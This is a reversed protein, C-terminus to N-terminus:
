ERPRPERLKDLDTKKFLQGRGIPRTYRPLPNSQLLRYFYARKIGLYECAQDTTLYEDEAM